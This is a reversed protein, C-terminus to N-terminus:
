AQNETYFRKWKVSGWQYIKTGRAIYWVSNPYKKDYLKTQAQWGMAGYQADDMFFGAECWGRDNYPVQFQCPEGAWGECKRFPIGFEIFIERKQCARRTKNETRTQARRLNLVSSTHAVPPDAYVGQAVSIDPPSVLVVGVIIAPFLWLWLRKFLEHFIALM